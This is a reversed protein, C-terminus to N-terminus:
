VDLMISSVQTTLLHIQGSKNACSRDPKTVGGKEGTKVKKTQSYPGYCARHSLPFRANHRSKWPATPAIPFGPKTKWLKWRETKEVASPNQYHSETVIMAAWWMRDM